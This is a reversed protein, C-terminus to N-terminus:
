FRKLCISTYICYLVCIKYVFIMNTVESLFKMWLTFLTQLHFYHNEMASVCV